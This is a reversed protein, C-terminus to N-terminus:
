KFVNGLGWGAMAGGLIGQIPNPQFYPQERERGLSGVSQLYNSFPSFAAQTGSSLFSPAAATMSTQRDREKQYNGGYIGVALDSLGRSLAENYGSNQGFAQMHGFSPSLTGKVRESGLRFYDELYKNTSPDLYMGSVTNKFESMAAPMVGYPDVQYNQLDTSYRDLAPKVYPMLWDPLGEETKITGAEGGGGLAGLAAGGLAGVLAPNSFVSAAGTGGAAGAAGGTAGSPASSGGSAGAAGAGAPAALQPFTAQMEAWSVPAATEAALVGAGGAAGGGALGPFAAQMEAWSVPAATEAALLGAGGSAGSGAGGLLANGGYAAGAMLALPTAMEVLGEVTSQRIPDPMGNTRFYQEIQSDSVSPAIGFRRRLEAMPTSAMSQSAAGGEQLQNALFQEQALRENYSRVFDDFTAFAM